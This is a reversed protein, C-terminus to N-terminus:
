GSPNDLPMGNEDTTDPLPSDAEKEGVVAPADDEDGGDGIGGTPESEEVTHRTGRESAFSAGAIVAEERSSFSLSNEPEGEVHNIWQGNKSRTFVDGDTM